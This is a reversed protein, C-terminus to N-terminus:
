SVTMSVGKGVRSGVAGPAEVFRKGTRHYRRLIKSTELTPKGKALESVITSKEDATLDCKHRM